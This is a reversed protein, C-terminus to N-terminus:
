MKEFSQEKLDHTDLQIMKIGYHNELKPIYRIKHNEFISVVFKPKDTQDTFCSSCRYFYENFFRDFVGQYVPLEFNVILAPRDCTGINLPYNLVLTCKRDLRFRDISKLRESISLDSTLIRIRFGDRELSRELSLAEEKGIVYILVKDATNNTLVSVLARYKEEYTRCPVTFHVMNKFCDKSSLNFSNLKIAYRKVFELDDKSDYCTSYFQLQTRKKLKKIMERVYATFKESSILIQFECFIMVKVKKIEFILSRRNLCFLLTGLTACILHDNVNFLSKNERTICGVKVDTYKAIEKALLSTQIALETTPSLCVIQPENLTTDIRTFSHILFALCDNSFPQSQVYIDNTPDTTMLITLLKKQTENLDDIESRQVGKAISSPINLKEFLRFYAPQDRSNSHCDKIATLDSTLDYISSTEQIRTSEKILLTKHDSTSTIEFTSKVDESEKNFRDFRQGEEAKKTTHLLHFTISM